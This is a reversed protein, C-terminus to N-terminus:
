LIGRVLPDALYLEPMRALADHLTRVVRQIYKIQDPLLTVPCPFIRITQVVGDMFYDMHRAIAGNRMQHYARALDNTPVHYLAQRVRAALGAGRLGTVEAPAPEVTPAPVEPEPAM